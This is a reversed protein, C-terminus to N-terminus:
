EFIVAAGFGGLLNKFLLWAQCVRRCTAYSNGNLNETVFFFNFIFTSTLRNNSFTTIYFTVRYVKRFPLRKWQRSDNWRQTHVEM